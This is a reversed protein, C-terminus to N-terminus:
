APDCLKHKAGPVPQQEAMKEATLTLRDNTAGTPDQARLVIRECAAESPLEVVFASFPGIAGVRRALPPRVTFVAAAAEYSGYRAAV